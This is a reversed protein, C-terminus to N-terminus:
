IERVLKKRLEMVERLIGSANLELSERKIRFGLEEMERPYEEIRMHHQWALLEGIGWIDVEIGHGDIFVRPSHSGENLHNASKTNPFFAGDEFDVLM